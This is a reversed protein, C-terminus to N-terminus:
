FDYRLGLLAAATSLDPGADSDLRDVSVAANASLGEILYRRYAAAAGLVTADGAGAFGSTFWQARSNVTFSDRASLQGSISAAIWYSEDVVGNAAALVTGPAGIFKRRDYGAGFGGTMRGVQRSYNFAVGRGRFVASRVSGLVGTLCNGGEVSSVCGDLDGTVPNRIAAFDTPLSALANTLQGGFGTIGDYVSLNVSSRSDPAWAFSGYYTTSDYRKGVHAEAATRSSPRWVVGVDWILGSVDYAIQRPGAKDTVLRGDAGIVPNGGADRVADRNSIEVDEYGVGGVLALSPGLPVTVDARVHADRVRSDLNSTDEQYVGGGVGIGVPLPAGPRLGVHANASHVTSEDFVDVRAAGPAVVIADPAEARTYGFRYNANVEADGASTHLNPGAYISYIRSESPDSRPATLTAGGNGDVRTRTALAGAEVTLARPVVSAYGRAIGSLTSSDSVTDDYGFTREYRVSASGGNNRGQVSVDVGAAVQTYTVTDDGPSLEAAFVQNAEIYPDVRVTKRSEGRQAEQAQAPMAVITAAGALLILKRNM